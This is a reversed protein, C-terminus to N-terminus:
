ASDLVAKWRALATRREFEQELVRRANQGAERVKGPSRSLEQICAAVGGADGVAFSWGCGAERLIGPIEGAPDGIFLTPRVAAAVGYFKSPVMLDELVPQLSIVHVDPVTLSLRLLERPQYPRFMINELGEHDAEREIWARRVGDGIFLFVIHKATKLLEAAKLITGLEHARGMNGSYGVVFKDTLNWGKRLENHNSDIPGIVEGDAWNHIVWLRESPVGENRLRAEMRRGLVINVSARRLSWNRALRLLPLLPRIMRIWLVDATEPFLDQIWNVLKAGRMKAAMAAVVSILPPDTKAVVIDGPKLQVVLNWAASLYFTVYDLTRGLLNQRGFRTTWVRIVRVGQIFDDRRLGADPKDYIQRGTVVHVAEGTKALHFALDALLQSTASHDPYFYRNVFFVRSGNPVPRSATAMDSASVRPHCTHRDTQM